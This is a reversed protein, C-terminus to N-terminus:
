SSPREPRGGGSGAALASLLGITQSINKCYREAGISKSSEDMAAYGGIFLKTKKLCGAKKLRNRMKEITPITSLVSASIGLYDPKHWKVANVIGDVAVGSGLDIAQFGIGRLLSTVIDKGHRHCEGEITAVLFKGKRLAKMGSDHKVLVARADGINEAHMVLDPMTFEGRAFKRFASHVARDLVDTSVMPLPM